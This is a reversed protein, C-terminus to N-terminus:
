RSASPARAAPLYVDKDAKVRVRLDNAPSVYVVRSDRIVEGGALLQYAHVELTGFVAAPLDLAYTARGGKV